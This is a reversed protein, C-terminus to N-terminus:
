KFGFILPLLFIVTISYFLYVPLYGTIIKIVQGPSKERFYASYLGPLVFALNTFILINSVLVVIRNPTIGGSLRSIIAVLAFINIILTVAVLLFLMLVNLNKIKSTNLESVCFVIIAMVALLLLNFIVLLGRDESLRIGSVFLVVLYIVSSILVLPTFIRAIVPAIKTTIDPYCSILWAAVVPSVMGGIFAINEAYFRGINIRIVAFLSITMGSLIAGAAMLLGTMIILEGNYRIFGSIKQSDRFDLSCYALCFFFWLMVPVHICALKVSDSKIEPLLNLYVSLAIVPLFLILIERIKTIKKQWSMYTILGAFLIVALNRFYFSEEDMSSFIGPLKVFLGTVLTIGLVVLIGTRILSNSKEKIEPKLRFQWFRILDTNYGTAIEPFYRAFDNKNERYLKELAEPDNICEAIKEKM